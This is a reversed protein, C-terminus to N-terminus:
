RGQEKKNLRELVKEAESLNKEINTHLQKLTKSEKLIKLYKKVLESDLKYIEIAKRIVLKKNEKDKLESVFQHLKMGIRNLKEMEELPVELKQEYNAQLSKIKSNAWLLTVLISILVPIITFTLFIRIM